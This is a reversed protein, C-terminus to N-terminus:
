GDLQCTLKPEQTQGALEARLKQKLSHVHDPKEVALNASEQQDTQLDYLETRKGDCSVIM